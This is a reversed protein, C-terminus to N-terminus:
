IKIFTVFFTPSSGEVYNIDDPGQDGDYVGVYGISVQEQSVFDVIGSFVSSLGTSTSASTVNGDITRNEAFSGPPGDQWNGVVLRLDRGYSPRIFTAVGEMLYRGAPVDIVNGIRSMGPITTSNFTSNVQVLAPYSVSDIIAQVEISNTTTSQQQVTKGVFIQVGVPIKPVAVGLLGQVGQTGTAGTGGTVGTLGRPGQIGQPGIIGASGAPGTPGRPGEM